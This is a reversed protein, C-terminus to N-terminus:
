PSNVYVAIAWLAIFLNYYVMIMEYACLASPPEDQYLYDKAFSAGALGLAYNVNGVFRKFCSVAANHEDIIVILVHKAQLVVNAKHICRLKMNVAWLHEKSENGANGCLVKVKFIYKYVSKHLYDMVRQVSKLLQKLAHVLKRVAAVNLQYEAYGAALFARGLKELWIYHVLLLILKFVM